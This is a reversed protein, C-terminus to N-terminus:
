AIMSIQVSFPVCKSFASAFYDAQNDGLKRYIQALLYCIEMELPLNCINHNAQRAAVLNYCVERLCSESDDIAHLLTCARTWFYDRQMLDSGNCLIFPKWRNLLITAADVCNLALHVHALEISLTAQWGEFLHSEALAIAPILESISAGFFGSSRYIRATHLHVSLILSAEYSSAFVRLDTLISLAAEFDKEHSKLKALALQAHFFHLYNEQTPALSILVRVFYCMAKADGMEYAREFCVIARAFPFSFNTSPFLHIPTFSFSVEKGDRASFFQDFVKELFDITLSSLQTVFPNPLPNEAAFRDYVQVLSDFESIDLSNQMQLPLLLPAYDSSSNAYGAFIQSLYRHGLLHWSTSRLIPIMNGKASNANMDARVAAYFFASSQETGNRSFELAYTSLKLATEIVINRTSEANELSDFSKALAFCRACILEAQRAHGKSIAVRVLLLLAHLLCVSDQVQQAIPLCEYITQLCADVHGFRFHILAVSLLAYQLKNSEINYDFYRHCHELASIYSRSTMSLMYAFYFIAPTPRVRSSLMKLTELLDLFTKEDCSQELLNVKAEIFQNLKMDDVPFLFMKKKELYDTKYLAILDFLESVGDFAAFDMAMVMKRLYLGFPSSPELSTKGGDELVEAFDNFIEVLDDPSNLDSIVRWLSNWAHVGALGFGNLCEALSDLSPEVWDQGLLNVGDSEINCTLNLLWLILENISDEDRERNEVTDENLVDLCHVLVLGVSLSHPSLFPDLFVSTTM